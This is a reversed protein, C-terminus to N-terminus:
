PTDFLFKSGQQFIKGPRAPSLPSGVFLGAMAKKGVASLRCLLIRGPGIGPYAPSGMRPVATCRPLQVSRVEHDVGRKEPEFFAGMVLEGRKKVTQDCKKRNKPRHAPRASYRHTEM